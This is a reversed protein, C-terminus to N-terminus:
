LPPRIALSRVEVAVGRAVLPALRPALLRRAKDVSIGGVGISLSRTGYMASERLRELGYGDLRDSLFVCGGSPSSSELAAHFHAETRESSM